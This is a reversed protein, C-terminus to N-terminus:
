RNTRLNPLRPAFACDGYLNWRGGKPTSNQLTLDEDHYSKLPIPIQNRSNHSNKYNAHKLTSIYNFLWCERRTSFSITKSARETAARAAGLGESPSPKPFHYCYPQHPYSLYIRTKRSAASSRLILFNKRRSLKLGQKRPLLERDQPASGNTGLLVPKLGQKRPLRERDQYLIM